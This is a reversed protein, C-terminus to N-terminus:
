GTKTWTGCDQAQFGADTPAITVIQPGAGFWNAIIESLTGGFGSMRQWYCDPGGGAQWTGAAIDSGVIYVGNGFPATPSATIPALDPSWNGCDQSNFGLDSGSIDVVTRVDVLGNAIIESLTGGFGSLREWYCLASSDSNRYRGPSIDHGVQHVGPGFGGAPPPPSPLPPSGGPFTFIGGDSAVLWYGDDLQTSAMGVIPRNLHMAGTSGYFLADGFAFIGGDTAVLWYGNGHSTAAMAVIPRNLHIAGTSGHFVADGFTFIGGDSAVMWYGHSDATAAMGVIPQNLHINGTSGYFVADGFSFIGGDSAVLWYGHGTPTAAMGVIPQNLRIAGTSGYFIADGFAFIGGDRAVLWYGHGSPTAAMGVIPQNLHINGTSGYFVADGFAFIGGDRAVLWYGHGTPTAAMGVIPQTPPM